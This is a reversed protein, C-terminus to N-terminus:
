GMTLEKRGASDAGLLRYFTEIDGMGYVPMICRTDPNICTAELVHSPMQGLGKFRSISVISDLEEMERFLYMLSIPEHQFVDSNKTTIFLNIDTWYLKHLEPLIYTKVDFLLRTLSIPMDIVGKSLVLTNENPMYIVKDLKLKERIVETNMTHPTLYPLVHILQELYEPNIALMSAVNKILTCIRIVEFCFLKFEDQDLKVIPGNHYQLELDFTNYYIQDIKVGVMSNYDRIFLQNAPNAKGRSGSKMRLYYLPPNTVFVHGEDIIKPSLTKLIGFILSGIHWGDDDADTLIGIRNFNLKELDKDGPMVGIVKVLDQFVPDQRVKSLPHKEPNIPKGKLLFVAQYNPNRVQDIAGGASDGEVILLETKTRDTSACGLYSSWKNLQNGVNKLKGGKMGKNIFEHYATEISEKLHDYLSLWFETGKTSLQKILDTTYAFYFAEDVFDDKTQGSFKAKKWKVNLSGYVPMQYSAEFFSRVDEDEIFPGIFGKLVTRLGINQSANSSSILVKNVMSVLGGPYKLDDMFLLSIDYALRDKESLPKSLEFETFVKGKLGFTQKIYDMPNIQEGVYVKGSEFNKFYFWIDEYQEKFLKFNVLKPNEYITTTTNPTYAALHKILLSADKWGVGNVFKEIGVFIEPDPEFFVLTGTTDDKTYTTHGENIVEGKEIEVFGIKGDRKALAVFKTSLISAAKAGIGFVGVSADYSDGWKGSTRPESFARTLAEIPVGRGNDMIAIQYKTQDKNTFLMVKIEHHKSPNNDAEDISNDLVEKVLHSQAKPSSPSPIYMSPFSRIHATASMTRITSASYNDAM